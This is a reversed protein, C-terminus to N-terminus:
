NLVGLAFILIGRIKLIQVTPPGQATCLRQYKPACVCDWVLTPNYKGHRIGVNEPLEQSSNHESNDESSNEFALWLLAASLVM